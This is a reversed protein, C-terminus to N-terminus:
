NTIVGAECAPPGSNSGRCAYSENKKAFRSDLAASHVSSNDPHSGPQIASRDLAGTEPVPRKPPTPEFGVGILKANTPFRKKCFRAAAHTGRGLFLSSSFISYRPKSGLVEDKRLVRAESQALVGAVVEPLRSAPKSSSNVTSQHRQSEQM